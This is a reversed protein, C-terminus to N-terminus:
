EEPKETKTKRGFNIADLPNAKKAKGGAKIQEELSSHKEEDEEGKSFLSNIDSIKSKQNEAFRAVENEINASHEKGKLTDILSEDEIIVKDDFPGTIRRVAGLDELKKVIHLVKETSFQSLDGITKVDAEKKTRHAALIIAAILVKAESYPTSQEM